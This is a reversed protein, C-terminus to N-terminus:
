CAATASSANQVYPFGFTSFGLTPKRRFRYTSLFAFQGDFLRAKVGGLHNEDELCDVVSVDYVTVYLYLPVVVSIESFTSM